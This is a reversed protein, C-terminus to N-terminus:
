AIHKMLRMLDYKLCYKYISDEKPPKPKLYEDIIQQRYHDPIQAMDVLSRNRNYNAQFEEPIEITFQERRKKTLAKSRKSSNMYTDDDSM